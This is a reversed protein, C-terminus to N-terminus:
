ICSGTVAEFCGNCNRRCKECFTLLQDRIKGIKQFDNLRDTVDIQTFRLNLDTYAEIKHLYTQYLAQINALRSELFSDECCDTTSVTNCLQLKLLDTYCKDIVCNNAVVIVQEEGSDPNTYTMSYVSDETFTHTSQTNATATITHITTNIILDNIAISIDSDTFNNITYSNCTTCEISGRCSPEITIADCIVFTVERTLTQCCNTITAKLKYRTLRTPTFTFPYDAINESTVLQGSTSAGDSIYTGTTIDYYSLSYELAQVNSSSSGFTGAFGSTTEATLQALSSPVEATYASTIQFTDATVNSITYVGDYNATGSITIETSDPLRHNTSTFVVNGGSQVVAIEDIERTTTLAAENFFGADSVPTTACQNNNLAIQAPTIIIPVNIEYCCDLSPLSLEPFVKDVDANFVGDEQYLITTCDTDYVTVVQKVSFIGNSCFDYIVSGGESSSGMLTTGLYYEVTWQSYSGNNSTTTDTFILRTSCVQQQFTSGLTLNLAGSLNDILIAM